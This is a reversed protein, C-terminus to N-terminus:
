VPLRVRLRGRADHMRDADSDGVGPWARPLGRIQDPLVAPDVQGFAAWPGWGRVLAYGATRFERLVREYAMGRASVAVQVPETGRRGAYLALARNGTPM